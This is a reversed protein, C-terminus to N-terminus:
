ASRWRMIGGHLPSKRACWLGSDLLAGPRASGSPLGPVAVIDAAPDFEHRATNTRMERSSEYRAACARHPRDLGLHGAFIALHGTRPLEVRRSLDFHRGIGDAQDDVPSLSVHHCTKFALWCRTRIPRISGLGTLCLGGYAMAALYNEPKRMESHAVAFTFLARGRGLSESDAKYFIVLYAVVHLTSLLLVLRGTWRHLFNVTTYGHAILTGIGGSRVGLTVTFTTLGMLILTARSAHTLFASQCWASIGLAVVWLVVVMSAETWSLFLGPVFRLPLPSIPGRLYSPLQIRKAAPRHRPHPAALSAGYWWRPAWLLRLVTSPLSWLATAAVVVAIAGMLYLNAIYATRQLKSAHSFAESSNIATGPAFWVNTANFHPLGLSPAM